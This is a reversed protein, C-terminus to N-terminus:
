LFNGEGMEPIPLSYCLREGNGIHCAVEVLVTKIAATLSTSHTQSIAAFDGPM